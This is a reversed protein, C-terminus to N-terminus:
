FFLGKPLPIKLGLQFIFYILISFLVSVSLVQYTKRKEIIIILFSTLLITSIIFGLYRILIIWVILNVITAVVRFASTINIDNIEHEEKNVKVKYIDIILSVAGLCIISVVILYPFFRPGVKSTGIDGIQYPIILLIIIGFLIASISGIYKKFSSYNM